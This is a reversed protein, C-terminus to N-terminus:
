RRKFHDVLDQEYFEPCEYDRCAQPRDEYIECDGDASLNPCALFFGELTTLEKVEGTEPHSGCCYSVKNEIKCNFCDVM